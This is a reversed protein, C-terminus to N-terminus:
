RDDDEGYFEKIFEREMNEAEAEAIMHGHYMEIDMVNSCHYQMYHCMEHATVIQIEWVPAGIKIYIANPTVTWFIGTVTFVQDIWWEHAEDWTWAPNVILLQYGNYALEAIFEEFEEEDWKIITPIDQESCDPIHYGVWNCESTDNVFYTQVFEFITEDSIDKSEYGFVNSFIFLGVSVAIGWTILLKHLRTKM